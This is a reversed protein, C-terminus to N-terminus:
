KLMSFLLMKEFNFTNSKKIYGLYLICPSINQSHLSSATKRMIEFDRM